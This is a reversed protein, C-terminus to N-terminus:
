DLRAEYDLAPAQDWGTGFVNQKLVMEQYQRDAATEPIPDVLTVRTAQTVPDIEFKFLEGLGMRGFLDVEAEPHFIVPLTFSHGDLEARVFALHGATEKGSASKIPLQPLLEDRVGFVTKWGPGLQALDTGTDYLAHAEQTVGRFSLAVTIYPSPPDFDNDGAHFPFSLTV